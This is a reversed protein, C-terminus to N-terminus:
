RAAASATPAGSPAAGVSPKPPPTSDKKPNCAALLACCALLACALRTTPNM